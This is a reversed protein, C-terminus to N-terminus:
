VSEHTLFGEGIHHLFLLISPKPHLDGVGAFGDLAEALFLFVLELLQAGLAGLPELVAEVLEPGHLVHALQLQTARVSKRSVSGALVGDVEVPRHSQQELGSILWRWGQGGAADVPLLHCANAKELNSIGM